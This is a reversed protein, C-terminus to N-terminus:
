GEDAKARAEDCVGAQSQVGRADQAAMLIDPGSGMCLGNPTGRCGKWVVVQLLNGSMRIRRALLSINCALQWEENSPANTLFQVHCRAAGAPSASEQAAAMTDASVKTTLWCHNSTFLRPPIHLSLRLICATM